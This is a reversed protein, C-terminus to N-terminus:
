INIWPLGIIESYNIIETRVIEVKDERYKSHNRNIM